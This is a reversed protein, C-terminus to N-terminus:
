ERRIAEAPNSLASKIAQYGVACSATVLMILGTILFFQAGLNTKYPFDELWRRMLLLTAPVAVLNALVVMAAYECTILRVIDWASAGIVKRIGFEHRRELAAFSALGFLGLFAELIALLGAWTSVSAVRTEARYADGIADMVATYEFPADPMARTWRQRVAAMVSKDATPDLRLLLYNCRSPEVILVVPQMRYFLNRFHFDPAIGIVPARYWEHDLEDPGSYATLEADSESSLGLRDAAAQNIVFATGDRDGEDAAFDRGRVVSVGLTRLYDRDVWIVPLSVLEGTDGKRFTLGNVNAGGPLVSAGSVSRVGAVSEFSTKLRRFLDRKGADNPEDFRVATLGRSEFGLDKHELFKEQQRVVLGSAILVAAIIFQFFVLGRRIWLGTRSHSGQGKLYTTTPVLALIAAPVAGTVLGVWVTFVLLGALMLPDGFLDLRLNSGVTLNFTPLVLEALGVALIAGALATLLSEVIYQAFLQRGTGGVVKRLGFEPARRVALATSLNIYNAAALILIFLAITGMILLRDSSEDWQLHIDVLPQLRYDFVTTAAEPHHEAALRDLLTETPGVQGADDLLLYTRTPSDWHQSWGNINQDLTQSSVVLDFQLHSEAPVNEAVGTVTLDPFHEMQLTRSVPNVEGFYRRAADETLVVSNPQDLVTGSDGRVLPFSFMEFFTSDAFLIGSERLCIDGRRVVAEWPTVRTVGKVAPIEDAALLGLPTGTSARTRRFGDSRASSEIVRYIRGANANFRDYSLEAKVFLAVLLCAGIGVSLGVVNAVTYGLHRAMHRLATKIFSSIM